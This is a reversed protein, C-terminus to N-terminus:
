SALVLGGYRSIEKEIEAVLTELASNRAKRARRVVYALAPPAPLHESVIQMEPRLHRGSLLAVGMASNVAAV